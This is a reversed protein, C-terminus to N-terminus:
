LSVLRMMRNCEFPSVSYQGFCPGRKGSTASLKVALPTLPMTKEPTGIAEPSLVHIFVVRAAVLRINDCSLFRPRRCIRQSIDLGLSATMRCCVGRGLPNRRFRGAQTTPGGRCGELPQRRRGKACRTRKPRLAARRLKEYVNESATAAELPNALPQVDRRAKAAM